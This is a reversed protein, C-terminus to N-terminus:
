LAQLLKHISGFEQQGEASTLMWSPKAQNEKFQIRIRVQADEEASLSYGRRELARITWAATVGEGEVSAKGAPKKTFIFDGGNTDFGILPNNFLRNLWGNLAADEPSGELSEQELMLWLKDTERLAIHLDHTSLVITKGHQGALQRLLHFIEYKNSIDLFATPEDLIIFPTDQALARAILVRQREGDSLQVVQRRAFKAMGVKDLSEMVANKDADHLRGLWNTYPFRGFAVLEAVAMNPLRLNETSVFSIMRSLEGSSINVVSRGQWLIEGHLPKQYGAMTRLLTSKGIGNPGILAVTEGKGASFHLTDRSFQPEGGSSNYGIKLNNVEITAARNGTMM